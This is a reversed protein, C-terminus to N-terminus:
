RVVDVFRVCMTQNRGGGTINAFLYYSAVGCTRCPVYVCPRYYRNWLLLPLVFHCIPDRSGISCYDYRCSILDSDFTKLIRTLSFFSVVAPLLSQADVLRCDTLSFCSCFSLPGVCMAWQVRTPAPTWCCVCVTRTAKARPGFCRRPTM